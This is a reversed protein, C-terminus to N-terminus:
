GPEGLLQLIGSLPIRVWEPRNNLEYSLEYVAKELIYADLLVQLEESSRPLFLARSAADRYSKLFRASVWLHWLQAWSARSTQIEPQPAVTGQAEQALLVTYVAYHFSRLMGAVDRLPSRKIRRESLPRAPEGEFDIIVFDKGTYLVQGLHYDGHHRIRMATIKRGLVSQFRKEVAGELELVRQALARVPPALTPLHRRLLPFAQAAVSRMTQYISRQYHASFPEPAFLPDTADSALALHLEATRQGLLQVSTLYSGIVEHVLTPPNEESAAVLPKQLFTDRDIERHATAREFYATLEDVTYQWADCAHPVFRHLIGVTVPEGRDPRYELAGVVAATHPFGVKETLFRGIELDPNVGQAVRRFLKLILQQDYVISTNSQDRKLLSTELVPAPSPLQRFASTTIGILAGRHGKHRRRRFITTLLVQPIEKHGLAEYLVGGDGNSQVRAVLTAPQEKEIQAAREGTVVGLTLVYTEPDGETYTLLVSIAYCEETMPLRVIESIVASRVSRAKGGFWRQRKLYALLAAELPAANGNAFLSALTGTITVVPIHSLSARPEPAVARAELSFWYFSHPGLTLFYPHAAIPPFENGSFMEIPTMGAFATLDLDTYQVFRSLNAIVLICEDQYRRLFALIKRNEPQLVEMTGRGFAQYRKRLAIQRKM